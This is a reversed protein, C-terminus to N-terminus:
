RRHPQQDPGDLVLRSLRSCINAILGAWDNPVEQRFLDVSSYWDMSHGSTGYRWESRWPIMGWCPEGLAGCMHITTNQVTIVLDLATVLAAFEDFDSFDGLLRHVRNGDRGANFSSIEGEVEGYQLNVFCCDNREILPSLEELAVSRLDRRTTVTGGRWSIGIKVRSPGVGELASRWRGVRAPDAALYPRGSFSAVARRYAYGLSGAQMIIDFKAQSLFERQMRPVFTVGPFAPRFLRLLRPDIEYWVKKADRELDPLISAFMIEDGVGQEALVAVTKGILASRDVRASVNLSTLYPLMSGFESNSSRWEYAPWGKDYDHLSL